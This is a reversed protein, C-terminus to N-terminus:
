GVDNNNGPLKKAYNHEEIYEMREPVYNIPYFDYIDTNKEM